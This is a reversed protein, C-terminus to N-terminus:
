ASAHAQRGTMPVPETALVEDVVATSTLGRLEANPKLV